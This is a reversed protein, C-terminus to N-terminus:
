RVCVFQLLCHLDFGAATAAQILLHNAEFLRRTWCFFCSSVIDFMNTAAAPM